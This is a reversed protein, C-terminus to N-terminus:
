NTLSSFVGRTNPKTGDWFNPIENIRGRWAGTILSHVTYSTGGAV